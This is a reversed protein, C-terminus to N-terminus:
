KQFVPHHNRNQRNGDSQPLNLLGIKTALWETKARKNVYAKINFGITENLNRYIRM